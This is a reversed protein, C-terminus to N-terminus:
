VILFVLSSELKRKDILGRTWKKVEVHQAVNHLSWTAETMDLETCGQPNYVTAQQAGRVM